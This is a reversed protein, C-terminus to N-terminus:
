AIKLILQKVVELFPMPSYSSTYKISDDSSSFRIDIVSASPGISFLEIVLYVPSNHCTICSFVKYKNEKLFSEEDCPRFRAGLELLAECLKRLVEIPNKATQIGYHWRLSRLRNPAPPRSLPHNYVKNMFSAHRQPLSSRLTEVNSPIPPIDTPDLFGSSEAMDSHWSTASYLDEYSSYCLSAPDPNPSETGSISMPKSPSLASHDTPQPIQGVSSSPSTISPDFLIALDPPSFTVSRHKSSFSSTRSPLRSHTPLDAIFWPHQMIEAVKIRSTPLVMLMQRILDSASSSVFSPITYIGKCVRSLVNSITVDEFPFEGVLMLYLLIGCGWVDVDCGDYYRGQIVEPAAYHPTGCSTSLFSGDLMFNSLGFDTLKVVLDKNLLINELKLDRHAVRHLHCYDIAHVIQRFIKRTTCEDLRNHKVVMSHLDTDMYELALVTYKPVRFVQYLTIINPHHLQRLITVERQLRKWTDKDELEDNYVMKLAVKENTQFHKGVVSNAMTCNGFVFDFVISACSLWSM